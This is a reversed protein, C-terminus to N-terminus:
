NLIQMVDEPAPTWPTALSGKELKVKEVHMIPNKHYANVRIAASISPQGWTFTTGTTGTTQSSIIKSFKPDTNDLTVNTLWLVINDSETSSEHDSTFNGNSSASITYTTGEELCVIMNTYLANDYNSPDYLYNPTFPGRSEKLLNRGYVQKGNSFVKDVPTGNVVCAKGNITPM